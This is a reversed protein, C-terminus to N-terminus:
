KIMLKNEKKKYVIVRELQKIQVILSKNSYGLCSYNIRYFRIRFDLVSVRAMKATIFLLIANIAIQTKSNKM